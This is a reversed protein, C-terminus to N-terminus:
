ERALKALGGTACSGPCLFALTATLNEGINYSSRGPTNPKSTGVSVFCTTTSFPLSVVTLTSTPAGGAEVGLVGASEAVLSVECINDGNFVVNNAGRARGAATGESDVGRVRGDGTSEAVSERRAKLGATDFGGVGAGGGLLPETNASGYRMNNATAVISV